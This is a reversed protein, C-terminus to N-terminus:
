EAFKALLGPLNAALAVAILHSSVYDFAVDIVSIDAQATTRKASETNRRSIRQTVNQILLSNGVPDFRQNLEATILNQELAAHIRIQVEEPVFIEEFGELRTKGSQVHM